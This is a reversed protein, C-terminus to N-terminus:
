GSAARAATRRGILLSVALLGVAVGAGAGLLDVGAVFGDRQVPYEIGTIEDRHMDTIQTKTWGRHAGTSLWLVVTAILMLVAALQLVGRVRNPKMACVSDRTRLVQWHEERSATM